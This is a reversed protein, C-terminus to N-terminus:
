QRRVFGREYTESELLFKGKFGFDTRHQLDADYKKMNDLTLRIRDRTQYINAGHATVIILDTNSMEVRWTHKEASKPIEIRGNKFAPAPFPPKTVLCSISLDPFLEIETERGLCFELIEQTNQKCIEAYISFLGFFHGFEVSCIEYGDTIGLLVEGAYEMKMLADQIINLMPIAEIIKCRVGLGVGVSFGVNPGVNENMFRTSYNCELFQSFRGGNYFGYLYSHSKAPSLRLERRFEESLKKDVQLSQVAICTNAVPLDTSLDLLLTEAFIGETEEDIGMKVDYTHNIIGADINNGLIGIKM